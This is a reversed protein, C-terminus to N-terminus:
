PLLVYALFGGAIGTLLGALGGLLFVYFSIRGGAKNATKTAAEISKIAESLSQQLAEREKKDQEANLTRSTQISHAAEKGAKEISSAAKTAAEEISVPLKEARELLTDMDEFLIQLAAEKATQRTTM